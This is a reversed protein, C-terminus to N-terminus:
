RPRLTWAPIVRELETGTPAATGSQDALEEHRCAQDGGLRKAQYVAADADALLSAFSGKAKEERAAVGVSATVTVGNPRLERIQRLVREAFALGETLSTHPLLVVFEDGGYRVALDNERVESALVGAIARLAESGTAHGYDDNLIKLKDVDLVVIAAPIGYRELRAEEKTLRERLVRLNGLRTLEDINADERLRNETGTREFSRQVRLLLQEVSYPKPLFDMDEIGLTRIRSLLDPSGSVFIIPVHCTRPDRRMQRAVGIGDLLPMNVDMLVLGPPSRRIARLAAAGDAATRVLYGEEALAGQLVEVQDRDDDVVMVTREPAPRDVASSEETESAASTDAPIMTSSITSSMNSSILDMRGSTRADVLVATLKAALLADDEQAQSHRPRITDSQVLFAGLKRDGAILPIVVISRLTAPLLQRVPDLIPDLVADSGLDISLFRSTALAADIEPYLRVDLPREAREPTRTSFIVRPSGQLLACAGREGFLGVMLKTAAVLLEYPRASAALAVFAEIPSHPSFEETNSTPSSM